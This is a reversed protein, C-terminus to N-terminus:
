YKTNLQNTSKKSYDVAKYESQLLFPPWTEEEHTVQFSLISNMRLMPNRQAFESVSINISYLGKSLQLHKHVVTFELVGNEITLGSNELNRQLVAVPRQEKDMINIGFFPVNM